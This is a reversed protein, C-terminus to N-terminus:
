PRGRAASRVSLMLLGCATATGGRSALSGLRVVPQYARWAAQSDFPPELLDIVLFLGIGGFAVLGALAATRSPLADRRAVAAVVLGSAALLKLLVAVLGFATM